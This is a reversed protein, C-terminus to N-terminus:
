RGAPQWQKTETLLQPVGTIVVARDGVRMTSTVGGPNGKGASAKRVGTVGRDIQRM